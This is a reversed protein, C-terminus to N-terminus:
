KGVVGVTGGTVALSQVTNICISPAAPTITLDTPLPNVNVLYLDCNYCM